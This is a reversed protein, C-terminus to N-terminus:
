TPGAGKNRGRAVLYVALIVFLAGVGLLFSENNFSDAGSGAAPTLTVTKQTELTLDITSSVLSANGTPTETLDIQSVTVTPLPPTLTVAGIPNTVNSTASNVPVTITQILTKLFVPAVTLTETPGPSGSGRGPTKTAGPVSTNTLIPVSTETPTETDPSMTPISQGPPSAWATIIPLGVLMVALVIVVIVSKLWRSLPTM